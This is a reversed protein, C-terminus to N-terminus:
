LIASLAATIIIHIVAAVVDAVGAVMVGIFIGVGSNWFLQQDVVVHMPTPTPSAAASTNAVSATATPIPSALDAQALLLPIM